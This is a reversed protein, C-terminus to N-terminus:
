GSRWRALEASLLLPRAELSGDRSRVFGAEVGHGGFPRNGDEHDFTTTERLIEATGLRTGEIRPEGFVTAYMGRALERPSRAWELIEAVDDYPRVCFVPSFFEPPHVPEWSEHVIVAPEVVGSEVDVRGGHVVLNTHKGIYDEAGKVAGSYVLPSLVAGPSRRDVVGIGDLANKLDRLVADLRGSHVYVLDTCLCDQGSNYLRSTLLARTVAAPAAKPGVILPNPGSGFGLFLTDPGIRKMVELGNDYQGTFVVADAGACSEVFRRQTATVLRVREALRPGCAGSLIDHVAFATERTRSSPRIDVRDCYLSPVLGFLVYSYLVNNSPLFVALRDARPPDGRM